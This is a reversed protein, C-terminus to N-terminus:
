LDKVLFDALAFDQLQLRNAFVSYSLFGALASRNKLWPPLLRPGHLSGDQFFPDLAVVDGLTLRGSFLSTMYHYKRQQMAKRLFTHVYTLGQLYVVDKTFVFRGRVDGGRFVRQAQYFSEVPDDSYEMYFRFIELFDAGDLAQQTALIRLALRQLREISMTGTILEAFTALGEQTRTTRPAGLGLSTLLPQSRGNAMTVSHVLAEHQLLQEIEERTFTTGARLRIRHASAAAKSALQPDLTLQIGSHPLHTEVARQLEHVAEESTLRDPTNLLTLHYFGLFERTVEKFYEAAELHTLAGSGIKDKPSGYLQLSIECFAPQTVNEILRAALHYSQATLLLFSSLPHSRDCQSIISTLESRNGEHDVKPYQVQPLKPNKKQWNEVFTRTVAEPWALHTLVKIGKAAQVLRADLRAWNQKDGLDM